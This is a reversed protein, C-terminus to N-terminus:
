YWGFPWIANAEDLQARLEAVTLKPKEPKSKVFDAISLITTNM